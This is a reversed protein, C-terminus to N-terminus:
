TSQAFGTTGTQWEHWGTNDTNRFSFRFDDTNTVRMGFNSVGAGSVKMFLDNNGVEQADQYVWVSFSFGGSASDIDATEIYDGETDPFSRGGFVPLALMLVALISLLRRM